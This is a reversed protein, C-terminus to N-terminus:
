FVTSGIRVVDGPRVVAGSTLRYAHEADENDHRVFAIKKNARFHFGGATAVLAPLTMREQYEYEGPKLVEGLIYVPRFKVTEVVVRANLTASRNLATAIAAQAEELSNGGVHVSGILPMAIMGRGDVTFEGSLQPERYTSVKLVDGTGVAYRYSSAPPLTSVPERAGCGSTMVLGFILIPLIKM